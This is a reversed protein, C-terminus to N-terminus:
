GIVAVDNKIHMAKFNNVRHGGFVSNVTNGADHGNTQEGVPTGVHRKNTGGVTYFGDHFLGTLARFHGKM